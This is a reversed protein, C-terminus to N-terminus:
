GGARGVLGEGGADGETERLAELGPELLGRGALAHGDVRPEDLRECAVRLRTTGRGAAPSHGAERLASLLELHESHEDWRGVGAAPPSPVRVSTSTRASRPSASSCATTSRCSRPPPSSSRTSTSRFFAVPQDAHPMLMSMSM